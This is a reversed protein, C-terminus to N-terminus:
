WVYGGGRGNHSYDSAMKQEIVEVDIIGKRIMEGVKTGLLVAGATEFVTDLICVWFSVKFYLLMKSPFIGALCDCFAMM